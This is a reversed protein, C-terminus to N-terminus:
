DWVLRRWQTRFWSGQSCCSHCRSAWGGHHSPGCWSCFIDQLTDLLATVLHLLSLDIYLIL